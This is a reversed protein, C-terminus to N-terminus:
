GFVRDLPLDLGPFLPSTLTATKEYEASSESAGAGWRYINVVDCEPDVLWYEEVGVREYLDRKLQRDRRSTSASLIEIVLSPPGQLNKSTLFHTRERSLYLLDPVVIDHRGLLADFPAYFLEGIPHNELYARLLYFLNGSIRQHRLPPSPTVYHEGAIIEHRLGDGPFRVYDEYTLKITSHGSEVTPEKRMFYVMTGLPRRSALVVRMNGDAKALVDAFASIEAKSAGVHAAHLATRSVGSSPQTHLFQQAETTRM